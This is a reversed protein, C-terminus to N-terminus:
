AARNSRPGRGNALTLPKETIAYRQRDEVVRERPSLRHGPVIVFRAPHSRIDGYEELTLSVIRTCREDFCECIFPVAGAAAFEVYREELEDNAQRFRAQKAAVQDDVSSSASDALTCANEGRGFRGL